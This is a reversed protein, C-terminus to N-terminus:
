WSEACDILCCEDNQERCKGGHQGEVALLSVFFRRMNPTFCFLSTVTCGQLLLAIYQLTPPSHTTCYQSHATLKIEWVRYDVTRVSAGATCYELSLKYGQAATTSLEEGELLDSLKRNTCPVSAELGWLVDVGDTRNLSPNQDQAGTFCSLIAPILEAKTPQERWTRKKLVVFVSKRSTQQSSRLLHIGVTRPLEKTWVHAPKAKSLKVAHWGLVAPIQKEM